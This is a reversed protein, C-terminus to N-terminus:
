RGAQLSRVAGFDWNQEIATPGSNIEPTAASSDALLMLVRTCDGPRRPPIEEDARVRFDRRLRLSVPM